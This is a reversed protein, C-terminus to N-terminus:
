FEQILQYQPLCKFSVFITDANFNKDRGFESSKKLIERTFSQRDLDNNYGLKWTM